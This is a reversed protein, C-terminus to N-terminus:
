PQLSFGFLISVSASHAAICSAYQTSSVICSTKALLDREASIASRFVGASFIATALHAEDSLTSPNQLCICSAPINTMPCFVNLVSPLLTILFAQPVSSTSDLPVLSDKPFFSACM